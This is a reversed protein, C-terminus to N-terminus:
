KLQETENNQTGTLKVQREEAWQAFYFGVLSACFFVVRAWKNTKRGIILSLTTEKVELRAPFSRYESVSKSLQGLV